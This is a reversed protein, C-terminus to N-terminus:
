AETVDSEATDARVIICRQWLFRQALSWLRRAVPHAPPRGIAQFAARGPFYRAITGAYWYLHVVDYEGQAVVRCLRTAVWRQARDPLLLLGPIGFHPDRRFLFRLRAPTTLVCFGGPRLVRMIERGLQAPAPVHEITELCFVVDFSADRMPLDTGSAVVYRLPIGTAGALRSVTPTLTHDVAVVHHRDSNAVAIAVGGNGTGLDLVNLPREGGFREAILGALAEGETFRQLIFSRDQEAHVKSTYVRQQELAVRRYTDKLDPWSVRIPM